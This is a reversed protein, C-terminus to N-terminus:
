KKIFRQSVHDNVSLLYTGKELQSIDVMEIYSQSLDIIVRGTNDSITIHTVAENAARIFVQDESPNPYIELGSVEDSEFIADVCDAEAVVAARDCSNGTSIEFDFFGPHSNPAWSLSSHPGTFNIVDPTGYPYSAGNEYWSMNKESGNPDITHGIGAPVEIPTDLVLRGITPGQGDCPLTGTSSGIPDGNSDKINIQFAVDGSCNYSYYGVTIADLTFTTLADFTLVMENQQVGRGAESTLTNNSADLGVTLDISGADEVYFTTTTNISTNFTNGTHLINMDTPSAYWEYPGGTSLVKLTAPGPPCVVDGEVEPLLSTVIIEDSEDACGNASATVKYTGPMTVDLTQGNEGDIVVDSEEWMYTIGNGSIAADLTAISPICLEVDDGLDITPLVGLVEVTADTICEGNASDVEVTWTGADTISLTNLNSNPGAELSGNRYWSFTKNNGSPLGSDLTVNGAGCLSKAAGLDPKTCAGSESGPKWFNGTMVMISIMRLIEPFYGQDTLGNANKVNTYYADVLSQPTYGGSLSTSPSMGMVGTGFMVRFITQTSGSGSGDLPVNGPANDPGGKDACYKSINSCIVTSSPDGSWLADIATRWPFRSADDGFSGGDGCGGPTGDAECWDSALGTTPHVNSQILAYNAPIINDEWDSQQAGGIHEAYCKLYGMPIYGPNRCNNGAAGWTDGPLLQNAGTNGDGQVEHDHIATILENAETAYDYPSNISPWQYEAVILAMAADVDSDTAGGSQTAGSCNAQWGMLGNGNKANEYFAWLDDLLEKDGMYAAIIMGYAVGESVSTAGGDWRVYKSGDPCDRVWDAYWDFYGDAADQSGEYTGGTPLNTPMLGFQYETNSGFPVTPNNSNINQASISFALACFITYLATKKM